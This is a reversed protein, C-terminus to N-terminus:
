SPSEPWTITTTLRRLNTGAVASTTYSASFNRNNVNQPALVVPVALLNLTNGPQDWTDQRVDLQMPDIFFRGLESSTMNERNHIILKNGAVFVSLMGLMILSLIITAVIVEVLSFGPLSLSGSVVTCCRQHRMKLPIFFRKKFIVPMRRWFM